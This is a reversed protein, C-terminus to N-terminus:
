AWNGKSMLGLIELQRWNIYKESWKCWLEPNDKLAQACAKLIFPLPTLKTGRKEGEAKMETRFAELETIDAEDFQTVHPLNLWSRHMNAATLKDVKSMPQIDVEGFASFDVEPIPPIGAGTAPGSPGETLARKVFEQVDEKLRADSFLTWAGTANAAPGAVTLLATPNPTGIGM